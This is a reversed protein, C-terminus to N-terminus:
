AVAFLLTPAGVSLLAQLHALRTITLLKGAEVDRVLLTYTGADTGWDDRDGSFRSDVVTFGENRAIQKASALEAYTM